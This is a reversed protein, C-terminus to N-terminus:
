GIRKLRLVMSVDNRRAKRGYEAIAAPDEILEVCRFDGMYTWENSRKKIFVPIPETQEALVRAWREIEPGIGPLVVSPAQPNLERSFAGYTVRGKVHPLYDQLGGGLQESIYARKYTKGREFM